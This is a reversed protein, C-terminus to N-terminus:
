APSTLKLAPPADAARGTVRFAEVDAVYDSTTYARADDPSDSGATGRPDLLILTFADALQALDGFYQSSFGPGGPHCVLLPGAGARHYTLTL